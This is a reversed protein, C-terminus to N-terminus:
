ENAREGFSATRVHFGHVEKAPMPGSNTLKSFSSFGPSPQEVGGLCVSDVGCEELKGLTYLAPVFDCNAVIVISYTQLLRRVWWGTLWRLVLFFTLKGLHISLLGICSRKWPNALQGSLLRGEFEALFTIASNISAVGTPRHDRLGGKGKKLFVVTTWRQDRPIERSCLSKEVIAPLPAAVGDTRGEQRWPPIWAQATFGASLQDSM